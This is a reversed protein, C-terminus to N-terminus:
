PLAGTELVPPQLNSEQRAQKGIRQGAARQRAAPAARMVQVRRSCGPNCGPRLVRAGWRARWAISTAAWLGYDAHFRAYRMTRAGSTTWANEIHSGPAAQCTTMTSTTVGDASPVKWLSSSAAECARNWLDQLSAVTRKGSSRPNMCASSYLGAPWRGYRHYSM